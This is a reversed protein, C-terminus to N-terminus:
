LGRRHNDVHRLRSALGRGQAVPVRIRRRPRGSPAATRTIRRPFQGERSACGLLDRRPRQNIRRGGDRSGGTVAGETRTDLRAAAGARVASLSSWSTTPRHARQESGTDPAFDCTHGSKTNASNRLVTRRAHAKARDSPKLKDEHPSQCYGCLARRSRPPRETTSRGRRTVILAWEGGMQRSRRPRKTRRRHATARAERIGCGQTRGHGPRPLCHRMVHSDQSRPNKQGAGRAWRGRRRRSYSTHASLPVAPPDLLLGGNGAPPRDDDSPCPRYYLAPRISARSTTCPPLAPWSGVARM